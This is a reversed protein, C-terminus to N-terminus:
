KAVMHRCSVDAGCEPCRNPVYTAKREIELAAWLERASQVVFKHNPHEFIAAWALAADVFGQETWQIQIETPHNMPLEDEDSKNLEVAVAMGHEEDSAGWQPGRLYVIEFIGCFIGPEYSNGHDSTTWLCWGDMEGGVRTTKM